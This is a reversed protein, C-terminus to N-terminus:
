DSGRYNPYTNPNPNTYPNPQTNYPNRSTLTVAQNINPPLSQAHPIVPLFHSPSIVLGVIRRSNM